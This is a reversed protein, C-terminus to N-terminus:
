TAFSICPLAVSVIFFYRSFVSLFQLFVSATIFLSSVLLCVYMHIFPLKIDSLEYNQSINFDAYSRFSTSLSSLFEFTGNQLQLDHRLDYNSVITEDLATVANTTLTHRSWVKELYEDSVV